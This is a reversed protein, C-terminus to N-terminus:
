QLLASTYSASDLLIDFTCPDQCDRGGPLLYKKLIHQKTQDIQYFVKITKVQHELSSYINSFDLCNTKFYNMIPPCQTFTHAQDEPKSCLVFNLNNRNLKKFNMKESHCNSRLIYLLQKQKNTILTTSLYPQIRLQTYEIKDLKTHAEKIKLFYKFAAKDM